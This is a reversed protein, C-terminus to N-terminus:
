WLDVIRIGYYGSLYAYEGSVTVDSPLNDLGLTKLIHASEPPALDVIM